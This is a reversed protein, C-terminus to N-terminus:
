FTGKKKNYRNKQSVSMKKRTEFSAKRGKTTRGKKKCDVMNEKQTGIWLHDPNVCKTNDCAHCIYLNKSFEGKFILYSFRHVKYSKRKYTIEPYRAKSKTKFNWCNNEDIIINNLIINKKIQEEYKKKEIGCGCDPYKKKVYMMTHKCQNGCDCLFLWYPKGLSKIAILSGFRKNINKKIGSCGCCKSVNNKITNFIVNKQTGCECKALVVDEGRRKYLFKLITWKNIKM